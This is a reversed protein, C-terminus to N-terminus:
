ADEETAEPDKGDLTGEIYYITDYVTRRAINAVEEATVAFIKETLTDPTDEIGFLQRTGFFTQLDLPNDNMQRYSNAISKKAATLEEESFLGKRVNELQRNIESETKERNVNEIGASVLIDGTYPSYSSSCYYCLSLKERVNLFLKSGPFGGFLENFLIAAYCDPNHNAVCVGTRLGMALKGQSVPMQQTESCFTGVKGPFLPLIDNKLTSPWEAFNKQLAAAVTEVSASGIYFVDPSVSEILNRYHRWLSKGDATEVYQKTQELTPVRDDDRYMLENCRMVAYSRTNNIEANLSDMTCRIEKTLIDPRFSEGECLPHLLMDAVLECIGDTLNTGDTVYRDDLFEATLCLILNQGVRSSRIEVSAAYLEDLRRNFLAMTPYKQTGHRMTGALLLHDANAKVSLPFTLTFTLIGTKFRDTRIASLRLRDSVTTQIVNM